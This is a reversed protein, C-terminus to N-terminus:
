NCIYGLPLPEREWIEKSFNFLITPAPERSLKGTPTRLGARKTTQYNFYRHLSSPLLTAKESPTAENSQSLGSPRAMRPLLTRRLTDLPAVVREARM